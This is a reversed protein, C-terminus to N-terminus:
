NLNKNLSARNTWSWESLFGTVAVSAPIFTLPDGRDQTCEYFGHTGAFSLSPGPHHSNMSAPCRSPRAPAGNAM